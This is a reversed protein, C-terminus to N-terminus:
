EDGASGTQEPSVELVATLTTMAPHHIVRAAVAVARAAAGEIL